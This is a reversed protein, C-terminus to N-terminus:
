EERDGRRRRTESGPPPPLAAFRPALPEGRRLDLVIPRFLRIPVFRMSRAELGWAVSGAREAEPTACPAEPACRVVTTTAESPQAEPSPKDQAATALPLLLLLALPRM